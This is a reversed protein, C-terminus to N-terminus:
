AVPSRFKSESKCVPLRFKSENNNSIVETSFTTFAPVELFHLVKSKLVRYHNVDILCVIGDTSSIQNKERVTCHRNEFITYEPNEILVRLKRYVKCVLNLM